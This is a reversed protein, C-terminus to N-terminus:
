AARRRRAARLKRRDTASTAGFVGVLNEPYALASELCPQRVPCSECIARAEKTTAGRTPFWLAPDKGRCAASSWWDPRRLLDELQPLDAGRQMVVYADHPGDHM